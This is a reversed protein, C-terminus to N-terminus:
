VGKLLYNALAQGHINTAGSELNAFCEAFYEFENTKAYKSLYPITLNPLLIAQQLTIIDHKIEQAVKLNYIVEEAKLIKKDILTKAKKRKKLLKNYQYPHKLDYHSYLYTQILHGFEHTLAYVPMKELSAPMFHQSQIYDNITKIHKSATKYYGIDLMIYNNERSLDDNAIAIEGYELKGAALILGDKKIFNKILPYKQLLEVLQLYNAIALRPDILSLGECDIIINHEDKLLKQNNVAMGSQKLFQLFSINNPHNYNLAM